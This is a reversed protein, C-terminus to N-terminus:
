KGVVKKGVSSGTGVVEAGIVPLGVELGIVEAGSVESGVELGIVESGVELGIVVVEAGVIVKVGVSVKM